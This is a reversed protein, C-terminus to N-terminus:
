IIQVGLLLLNTLHRIFTKTILIRSSQDAEWKATVQLSM